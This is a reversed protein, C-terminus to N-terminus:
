EAPSVRSAQQQRRQRMGFGIGTFGLLSVLLSGPAPTSAGTIAPQGNFQLHAGDQVLVNYIVTQTQSNNTLMGSVNYYAYPASYSSLSATLGKGTFNLTSTDNAALGNMVIGGSYTIVSAFKALLQGDVTGGSLTVTGGFSGLNGLLTGGSVAIAASNYGIVDQALANSVGITGGTMTFSGANKVTVGLGVTCNAPFSLSGGYIVVASGVTVGSTFVVRPTSFTTANASAAGIYASGLTKTGVTTNVTYFADPTAQAASDCFVPLVFFGLAAARQLTSVPNM